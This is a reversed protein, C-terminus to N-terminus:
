AGGGSRRKAGGDGDAPPGRPAVYGERQQGVLAAVLRGNFEVMHEAIIDRQRTETQMIEAQTVSSTVQPLPTLTRSDFMAFANQADKFVYKDGSKTRYISENWKPSTETRPPWQTVEVWFVRDCAEILPGSAEDWNLQSMEECVISWPLEMM